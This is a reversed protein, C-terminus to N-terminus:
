HGRDVAVTQETARVSPEELAEHAAADAVDDRGAPDAREVVDAANAVDAADADDDSARDVFAAHVEGLRARCERRDLPADGGRRGTPTPGRSGSRRSDRHAM